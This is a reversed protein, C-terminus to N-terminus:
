EQGGGNESGTEEAEADVVTKRKERDDLTMLFSQRLREMFEQPEVKDKVGDYLDCLLGLLLKTAMEGNGIRTHSWEGNKDICCFDFCIGEKFLMEYKGKDLERFIKFFEKRTM